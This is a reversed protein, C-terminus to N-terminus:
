WTPHAPDMFAIPAGLCADPIGFADVLGVAADRLERVLLDSERRLASDKAPDLDALTPLDSSLQDGLVVRLVSM